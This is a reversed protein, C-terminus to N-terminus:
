ERNESIRDRAWKETDEDPFVSINASLKIPKPFTGARVGSWIYSPSVSYRKTLQKIRSFGTKNIEPAVPRQLTDTNM